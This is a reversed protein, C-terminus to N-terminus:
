SSRTALTVRSRGSLDRYDTVHAWGRGRLLTPVSNSATGEGQLDGHEVVLAGRPRLMAAATREFGRFIDLGDGGGFLAESPDFDRVEPDLPVAGDPIYPPNTVVLDTAGSLWESDGAAAAQRAVDAPSTADAAVLAVCSGAARISEAHLEINRAAWARAPGHVEVTVVDIPGAEVALAIAIAGSGTGLEVVRLRQRPQDTRMQELAGLAHEVLIETEPRPVFVGPGVLLDLRRFPARGTLHQLPVRAGRRRVLEAVREADTTSVSARVAMAARSIGLVHGILQEADAAPSPVGADALAAVSEDRLQRLPM